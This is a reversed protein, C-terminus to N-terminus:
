PTKFWVGCTKLTHQNSLSLTPNIAGVRGEGTRLTRECPLPFTQKM